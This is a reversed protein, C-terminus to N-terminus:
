PMLRDNEAVVKCDPRGCFKLADAKAEALTRRGLRWGFRGDPAVAFARNDSGGLYSVWAEKARDGLGPPPPLDAVFPEGPAADWTPLSHRKLFQDVPDWWHARGAKSLFLLHGERGFAPAAVFEASAGGAVFAAHMRRALEPGFRTDNQSYIWLTPIRSTKGFTGFTRELEHEQCMQGPGSSGRGGAFNIVARLGEPPRASLATVAFGGASEGIAVIRQPDADARKKVAEIVAALDKVTEAAAGPYNTANCAGMSEEFRGESQGYGRRMVAVALYGRRAFDEAQFAYGMVSVTRIVNDDPNGPTGHTIVAVPYRGEAKPRAVLVELQMERAGITVPLKGIEQMVQDRALPPASAAVSQLLFLGVALAMRAPMGVTM